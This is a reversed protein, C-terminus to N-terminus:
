LVGQHNASLQRAARRLVARVILPHLRRVVAFYAKGRRNHIQVVTSLVVRDTRSLVSARFSLHREDTGLLIEDDTRTRTAFTDPRGRDIGVLGVIAQRVALLGCVWRPANHFIADAWVQPDIRTGVPGAVTFADSWDIRPLARALLGTAPVELECRRVHQDATGISKTDIVTGRVTTVAVLDQGLDWLRTLLGRIAAQDLGDLDLVTEHELRNISLERGFQARLTRGAAASLPGAVTISCDAPVAPEARCGPESM